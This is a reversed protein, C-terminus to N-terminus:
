ARSLWAIAGRWFDGYHSWKVFDTGWHPALDSAFAMSRGEGVQWVTILPDGEGVTALVEAGPKPELRQYGLFQPWAAPIGALVDHDGAVVSVAAGATTEVRDDFASITVPLVDEVPTGHYSAKTQYGQFSLWGGAMILAGGQRVYDAIVQLRDPGMPVVFMNPYMTLNNRGCDSIIVVDYQRLQEVTTPFTSTVLHNPIHTVEVDPTAAMADRFFVSFDEYGGLEVVDFGKTHIRTVTWTEGALLVRRAAM